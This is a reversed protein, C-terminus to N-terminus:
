PDPEVWGNAVVDDIVVQNNSAAVGAPFSIKLIMPSREAQPNSRLKDEVSSNRQVYGFIMHEGDLSELRYSQWQKDDSFGFNYYDVRKVIVRFRTAETPLAALLAAWTMDSWGVWSEWDIKLGEPTAVLTLQRTEFNRTRIDVTALKENLAVNGSANFQALGPPDIRGQPYQRLLRPKAREPNRVLPLLEDVSRAELFKRALPEAEALVSPAGRQMLGPLAAEAAPPAAAPPPTAPPAQPPQPSATTAINGKGQWTLILGAAIVVLLSVAGGLIWRMTRPEHRAATAGGSAAHDWSPPKAQGDHSAQSRRKRVKHRIRRLVSAGAPTAPSVAAAALPSPSAAAPSEAMLPPTSDGAAPLRLLRRCGQCVVGQGDHDRPVRFVLRCDPCM